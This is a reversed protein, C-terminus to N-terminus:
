TLKRAGFRAQQGRCTPPSFSVLWFACSHLFGRVFALFCLSASHVLLCWVLEILVIWLGGCVCLVVCDWDVVCVCWEGCLARACMCVVCLVGFVESHSAAYCQSLSSVCVVCCLVVRCSVVCCLVVCCM